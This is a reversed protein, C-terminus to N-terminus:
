SVRYYKLMREVLVKTSSGSGMTCWPYTTNGAWPRLLKHAQPQILCAWTSALSSALGALAQLTDPRSPVQNISALAAVAAM